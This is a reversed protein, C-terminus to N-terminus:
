PLMRETWNNWGSHAVSPEGPPAAQNAVGVPMKTTQRIVMTRAPTSTESPM